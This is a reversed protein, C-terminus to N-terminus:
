CLHKEFTNLFTSDTTNKYRSYKPSQKSQNKLEQSNHIFKIVQLGAVYGLGVPVANGIQKYQQEISGEFVWNSPFMQIRAYEPISLPRLFEPHCLSTAPMTPVTVLTPSPQDYSLRRLFGTKGGNTNLKNGMVQKQIDIPLHKWYQGGKLMALYPIHQKRLTGCNQSTAPKITDFNGLFSKWNGFAEKITVWKALGRTTKDDPDSHTPSPLPISHTGLAGFIIVRERKQPVGYNAANFLSFSIAYGLKKFESCLWYMVSGSLKSASPNHVFIDPVFDDLKASLLGRVNELLFFKPKIESVLDLFKYLTNSRLDTLGKRKGASSFPQCPPGGFILDVNNPELNAAQLIDTASFQTIDGELLPISTNAKITKCAWKDWEVCLRIDFGAKEIGLDFGMAGSFLSIANLPQKTHDM